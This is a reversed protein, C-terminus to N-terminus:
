SEEAWKKYASISPARRLGRPRSRLAVTRSSNGMRDADQRWETGANEAEATRPLGHKHWDIAGRVAWALIGEVEKFLKASLNRDQEEPPTVLNFPITRLRRWIAEDYGGIV